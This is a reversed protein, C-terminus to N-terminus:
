AKTIRGNQFSDGSNDLVKLRMLIFFSKRLRFIVKSLCNRMGALAQM